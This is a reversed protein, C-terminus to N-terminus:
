LMTFNKSHHEIAHISGCYTRRGTIMTSTCPISFVKTEREQMTLFLKRIAEADGEELGLRKSADIINRCDKSTCGLNKPGGEQIQLMIISKSPRGGEQIQLMIISKSPRICARENAQLQRKMHANLERHGRMFFSLDPILEHNHEVVVKSVLWLNDGGRIARVKAPCNVRKSHKEFYTNRGKDCSLWVYKLQGDEDKTSSRIVVAFCKEKAHDQFTELLEDVSGFSMGVTPIPHSVINFDQEHIVNSISVEDVLPVSNDECGLSEHSSGEIDSSGFIDRIFAARAMELDDM